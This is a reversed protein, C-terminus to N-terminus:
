FLVKLLIPLNVFLLMPFMDFVLKKMIKKQGILQKALFKTMGLQM